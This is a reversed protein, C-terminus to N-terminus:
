SSAPGSGSWTGSAYPQTWNGSGSLTNGNRTINGTWTGNGAEGSGQWNVVGDNGVSGSISGSYGTQSSSYTGSVSGTQSINVSFNGNVPGMESQGSWNGNLSGYYTSVGGGGGGSSSSSGGGGGGGGAVAAVVAVGGAIGLMTTTSIGTGSASGSGAAGGTQTGSVSSVSSATGAISKIQVADKFGPIAKPVVSKKFLVTLKKKLADKIKSKIREKLEDIVKQTFEDRSGSRQLEYLPSKVIQGQKNEVEFMYEVAMLSESPKPLVTAYENGEILDMERIYFDEEGKSRFLCYATRIGAPDEAKMFIPAREESNFVGQSEHIIVTESIAESVILYFFFLSLFVGRRIVSQM